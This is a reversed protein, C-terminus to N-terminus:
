WKGESGVQRTRVLDSKNAVTLVAVPKPSDQRYRDLWDIVCRFTDRDNIAYVVVFGDIEGYTKYDQWCAFFGLFM